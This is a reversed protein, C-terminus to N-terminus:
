CILLSGPPSRQVRSTGRATSRNKSWSRITSGAECAPPLRQHASWAVGGGLEGGDPAMGLPHGDSPARVLPDGVGELRESGVVPGTPRRALAPGHSVEPTVEDAGHTSGGAQTLREGLLPGHAPPGLLGTLGLDVGEGGDLDLPRGTEFRRPQDGLHPRQDGAM